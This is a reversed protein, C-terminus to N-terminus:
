TCSTQMQYMTYLRPALTSLRQEIFILGHGENRTVFRGYKMVYLNRIVVIRRDVDPNRITPLAETATEIEHQDPLPGPLQDPERYYALITPM